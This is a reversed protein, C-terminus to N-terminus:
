RSGQLRLWRQFVPTTLTLTTPNVVGYGAMHNLISPEDEALESAFAVDGSALVRLFEFEDPYYRKLSAVMQEFIGSHRKHFDAMTATVMAQNPRGRREPYSTVVDSAALRALLPHSGVSESLERLAPEEWRMQMRRGLRRIMEQCDQNALPGLYTVALLGFLPNDSEGLTATESPTANVGALVLTLQRTEQALARLTQFFYVAHEAPQEARPLLIEAEDLLLVLRTNKLAGETLLNSARDGVDSILRRPDQDQWHEPIHLARRAAPESMTSRSALLGALAVALQHAAHATEATRELDLFIPAVEARMRLRQELELLVSTKGIRRLGFIGVHSTGHSLSRELDRLLQARGFFRDGTVPDRQDYLNQASVWEGILEQLGLSAEDGAVIDSLKQRTLPVLTIGEEREVAWDSIKEGASTDDCTIMAFDPEVPNKAARMLPKVRTVDRPQLEEVATCFVLFQRNFGFHEELRRPLRVELMWSGPPANHRLPVPAAYIIEAGAVKFFKRVAEGFAFTAEFRGIHDALTEPQSM